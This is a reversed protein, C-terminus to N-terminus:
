SETLGSRIAYQVLEATSQIQLSGMMEYKHTEVTRPSLDLESAIQKMSLGRVILKLVERQRSTLKGCSPTSQGSIEAFVRRAIQPSIHVKDDLVGRIAAVLEEGAASKLLYGSAGARLAEVALPAESHMTLFIVKYNLGESRMRRLAELGSMHPMSIDAVIVDPRNRRASELMKVGDDVIGTLEFDERLYNSLSQVLITHDDALLVKTQPM